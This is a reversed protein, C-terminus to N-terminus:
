ELLELLNYQLEKYAPCNKLKEHEWYKNAYFCWATADEIDLYTCRKCRQSYIWPTLLNLETFTESSIPLIKEETNPNIAKDNEQNPGDDEKPKPTLKDDKHTQSPKLWSLDTYIRPKQPRGQIEMPTKSKKFSSSDPSVKTKYPFPKGIADCAEKFSMGKQWRLFEIMDGSKGCQRCWFRGNLGENPWVHFRDDGGCDPCSSVYEGGNTSAVRKLTIGPLEWNAITQSYSM